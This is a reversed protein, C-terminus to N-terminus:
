AADALNDLMDHDYFTRVHWVAVRREPAESLLTNSLDGVWAGGPVAFMKTDDQCKPILDVLTDLDHRVAALRRDVGRQFRRALAHLSLICVPTVQFSATTHAGASIQILVAAIGPETDSDNWSNFQNTGCCWRAETIAFGKPPHKISLEGIRWTSPMTQWIRALEICMESRITPKRRLRQGLARKISVMIPVGARDEALVDYLLRRAM